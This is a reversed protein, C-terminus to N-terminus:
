KPPLPVQSKAALYAVLDRVQEKTLTELQGEPMISAESTQVADIEEAPITVRDTASQLTLRAPTREVILGTLIRGSTTEVISMRFDQGIEASPDILNSLVYDLNARNSGTLDPGIKAGEGFLLHCQQCSKSYILRGNSLDARSLFSTTLLAKYKAIQEEKQPSANRVEGWVHRLRRTVQEDGFAFLQRAIYASLDTRVVSKKEVADLLALPVDRRVRAVIRNPLGRSDPSVLNENTEIVAV